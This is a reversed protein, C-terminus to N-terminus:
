RGDEESSERGTRQTGTGSPDGNLWSLDWTAPLRNWQFGHALQENENAASPKTHRYRHKGNHSVNSPVSNSDQGTDPFSGRFRSSTGNTSNTSNPTNSRVGSFSSSNSSNTTSHPHRHLTFASGCGKDMNPSDTSAHQEAGRVASRALVSSCVEVAKDSNGGNNKGFMGGRDDVASGNFQEHSDDNTVIM